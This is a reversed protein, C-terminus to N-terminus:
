ATQEPDIASEPRRGRTTNAASWYSWLGQIIQRWDELRMPKQVYSNAGLEYARRVIREDFCDSLVVIPITAYSAYSRIWRLVEFGNQVPLKLDLLILSPSPFRGRDRYPDNGCLYLIADNGSVVRRFRASLGLNAFADEVLLADSDSDEVLLVPECTDLVNASKSLAKRFALISNM